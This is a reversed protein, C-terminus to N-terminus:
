WGGPVYEWYGDYCVFGYRGNANSGHGLWVIDVDSYQACAWTVWAWVNSHSCDGNAMFHWYVYQGCSSMHNTAEDYADQLLALDMGSGPYDMIGFVLAAKGQTLAMPSAISSKGAFASGDSRTSVISNLDYPVVLDSGVINKGPPNQTPLLLTTYTVM